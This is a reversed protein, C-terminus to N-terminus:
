GILKKNLMKELVIIFLAHSWGLGIIWAPSLRENDIQEALYGHMGSTKLVFDFCERAKRNEGSDLYYNVMWLTAIVWPNGGMYHDNEFRKYGGTYTRLTLNINEVTNLIKKEKASFMNFPTVAGLISIDILEDELNRRFTKKNEDYFNKLIFERIRVKLEKLEEKEKNVNEQKVRNKTFSEKLDECIKIMVDFAAFISSLSYLHIGEHMEWLDYSLHMKRENFLDEVYKKLFVVAKECMKLNDELFKKNETRLYHKYLGFIVSATEDIQYGWCPALRGDTFFRQEWMGSRSQTNKCFNKYFKETEKEMKLIDMADTIFVADRPWCYTYRGCKTLKEDVEVAASMGGTESNQLLPYLLITRNYIEKIKNNRPNEELDLNLGDHNKLYKKWYKLVEEYEKRFDKKRIRNITKEIGDLGTKNDDVYIYIEFEKEENPKLVGLDYDTSSDSSMGVYDKDWIEGSAINSLSNNIQSNAIKQKSFTCLSYDHMYQILTDNDVYGSVQNNDTSILKAHLLFNIKLDIVNENIFKYKKVLVNEDICVFDTQIIKLKFYTNLIETKLINTDEIFKQSYVNNVDDHLYIMGSDNIKVGTHFFDIFQKYDTTPYFFRLLEGKKTYSATIKENGIIADNFYKEMQKEIGRKYEM